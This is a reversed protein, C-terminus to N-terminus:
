DLGFPSLRVATTAAPRTRPQHDHTARGSLIIDDAVVGQWWKKRNQRMRGVKGVRGGSFLPIPAPAGGKAGSGRLCGRGARWGSRLRFPRGRPACPPRTPPWTARYPVPTRCSHNPCLPPDLYRQGAAYLGNKQWSALFSQLYAAAENYIASRDLSATATVTPTSSPTVQPTSAKSCGSSLLLAAAAFLVGWRARMMSYAVSGQLQGHLLDGRKNYSSRNGSRRCPPGSVM